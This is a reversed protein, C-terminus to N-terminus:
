GCTFTSAGGTQRSTASRLKYKYRSAARRTRHVFKWGSTARRSTMQPVRVARFPRLGAGLLFPLPDPFTAFSPTLRSRIVSAGTGRRGAETSRRQRPRAQMVRPTRLSRSQSSHRGTGALRVRLSASAAAAAASGPLAPGSPARNPIWRRCFKEVCPSTYSTPVQVM